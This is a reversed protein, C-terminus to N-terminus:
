SFHTNHRIPELIHILLKLNILVCKTYTYCFQEVDAVSSRRAFRQIM